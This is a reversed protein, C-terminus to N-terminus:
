GDETQMLISTGVFCCILSPAWASLMVPIQHTVGLAKLFSSLFFISFGAAIGILILILNKQARPARLTVAAAILIMSAMLLPQSLLNQYYIELATAELGTEKLTQIFEPLDWFSITEPDAFSEQLDSQSMETAITYIPPSLTPTGPRNIKVDQFVWQGDKLLAKNADVRQYNNSNNDFFLAMVNHLEWQPLTVSAAYFIIEGESDKEKLWLGNKSVSVLNKTQGLYLSQMAEYKTIMHASFPHLITIYFLGFLAASIFLPSLFRWASLGACRLIVLEQRRSLQWLTLIGAFLIAFPILQQGVEPLKYLGMELITAIGASDKKAARRLLELTDFLYVITLLASFLFLVNKSFLLALYRSLVNM